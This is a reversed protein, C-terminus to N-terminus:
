TYYRFSVVSSSSVIDYMEVDADCLALSACNISHSLASAEGDCELVLIFVDIVSKPYKHMMVSSLMATEIQKSLDREM